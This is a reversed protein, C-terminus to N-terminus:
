GRHSEKRLRKGHECKGCHSAFLSKQRETKKAKGMGVIWCYGDSVEANIAPCKHYKM